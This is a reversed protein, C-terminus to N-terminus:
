SVCCCAWPCRVPLAIYIKACVQVQEPWALSSPLAWAQRAGRAGALPAHIRAATRAARAARGDSRCVHARRWKDAAAAHLGM